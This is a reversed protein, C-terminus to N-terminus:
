GFAVEAKGLNMESLDDDITLLVPGTEVVKEEEQIESLLSNLMCKREAQMILFFDFEGFLRYVDKIGRRRQLDMYVSKEYGPTVKIMTLALVM